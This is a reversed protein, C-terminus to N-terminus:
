RRARRTQGWTGEIRVPGFSNADKIVITLAHVEPPDSLVEGSEGDLLAAMVQFHGHRLAGHMDHLDNEYTTDDDLDLDRLFRVGLEFGSENAVALRIVAQKIAKTTTLTVRTTIAEGDRFSAQVNGSTNITSISISAETNIPAVAGGSAGVEPIRSTHIYEDVVTRADGLSVVRGRELHLARDCLRRVITADHTVLLLTGGSTRFEDIRRYCKQVFRADGVAMAEDLLLIDPRVHMAVASGLRMFMGSPFTKIPQNAFAELEAFGLIDDLSRKLESRPIGYVAGALYVNEKASFEPHFGAVFNPTRTQTKHALAPISRGIRRRITM